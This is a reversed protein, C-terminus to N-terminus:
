VPLQHANLPLPVAVSRVVQFFMLRANTRFFFSLNDFFTAIQKSTLLALNNCTHIPSIEGCEFLFRQSKLCFFFSEWVYYSMPPSSPSFGYAKTGSIRTRSVLALHKSGHLYRALRFLQIAVTFTEACLYLKTGTTENKAWGWRCYMRCRVPECVPPEPQEPEPACACM